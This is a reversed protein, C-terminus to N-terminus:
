TRWSAQDQLKRRLSNTAGTIGIDISLRRKQTREADSAHRDGIDRAERFEYPVGVADGVLHGWVGPADQEPRPPPPAEDEGLM